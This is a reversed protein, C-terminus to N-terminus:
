LLLYPSAKKAFMRPESDNSWHVCAWLLCTLQLRSFYLQRCDVLILAKIEWILDNKILTSQPNAQMSLSYHFPLKMDKTHTHLGVCLLKIQWMTHQSSHVHIYLLPVYLVESCYHVVTALCAVNLPILDVNCHSITSLLECWLMMKKEKGEKSCAGLMCMCVTSSTLWAM